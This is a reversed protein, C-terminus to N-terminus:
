EPVDGDLASDPLPRAYVGLWTMRGGAGIAKLIGALRKDGSPLMTGVEILQAARGDSAGCAITNVELGTALFADTLKAASFEAGAEVALLTCDDGSAEPEIAAIVLADTFGAAANGIAGFPLRAIARPPAEDSAGLKLWWPDRDEEELPLVGLTARGDSVALVVEDANPLALLPALSGFHDRALDWCGDCVAVSLGGQVVVASSMIERWIRVLAARPFPGRHRAILRRLIQAERGPRFTATDTQEKLRGVDEVLETRRMLLDHLGDDVEDIRRRLAALAGTKDDKAM